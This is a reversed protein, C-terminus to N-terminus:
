RDLRRSALVVSIDDSLRAKTKREIDRIGLMRGFNKQADSPPQNRRWALRRLPLEGFQDVMWDEAAGAADELATPAEQIWEGTKAGKATMWGARYLDDAEPWLFALADKTSPCFPIGNKTELWLVGTNASSLLDISVMDLPGELIQKEGPGGGEPLEADIDDWLENGESDITKTEAGVNLSTLTILSLVQASGVLDLILADTKGPYLRLARGIMQSYLIQSQTPRAIVVCDCMPFDAGETLVQVTVLARTVGARYRDYIPGREELSLAGTTAEAIYGQATLEEALDNAADVSAAFIIPRRGEAHELIAGVISDRSAEMVQALQDQAFDGARSRVGQLDLDPLQVTLGRPMTLFGLEIAWKLDKEYVVEEISDGLRKGDERRMTATFGCMYAGEYGGLEVLVNHWGEAGIHHVEDWLIVDRPGLAERRHSSTLTQLTAAVIPQHHDDREARVIGVQDHLSPDVAVVAEVMQDLLEGRHALMVVRLNLRYAQVAIAAIVTSKGAGTPLVVGVRRLHGAWADIVAQTAEVQYERLVRPQVTPAPM